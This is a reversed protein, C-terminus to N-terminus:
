AALMDVLRGQWAPLAWGAAVELVEVEVEMPAAVELVEVEVEM